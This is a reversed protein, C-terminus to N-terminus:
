SIFEVMKAVKIKLETRSIRFSLSINIEITKLTKLKKKRKKKTKKEKSKKYINIHDCLIPLLV